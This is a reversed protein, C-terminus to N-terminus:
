VVLIEPVAVGVDRAAAVAWQESEFRCASGRRSIRVVVEDGQELTALHVENTEGGVIRRWGVARQGTAHWVVRELLGADTPLM